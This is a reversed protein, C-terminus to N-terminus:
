PASLPNWVRDFGFSAFDKVNATAFDTVGHQRLVLATRADFLRRRAFDAGSALKWLAEHTALSDPPFGLIRWRPHHRYSRIVGVAADASLPQALVAPNRLHLYLEALIFESLAVDDRLTLGILFDRAATHQPAAKSYAYLLLNTDVSIM